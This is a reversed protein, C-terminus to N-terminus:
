VVPEVQRIDGSEVFVEGGFPEDKNELLQLIIDAYEVTAKNAMPMTDFQYREVM